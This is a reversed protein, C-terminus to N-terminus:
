RLEAREFIAKDIGEPNDATKLLFLM